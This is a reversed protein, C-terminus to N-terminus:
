SNHPWEERNLRRIDELLSRLSSPNRPPKGAGASPFGECRAEPPQPPPAASPSPMDEVLSLTGDRYRAILYALIKLRIRWVWARFAGDEELRRRCWAMRALWEHFLRERDPLPVKKYFSIDM